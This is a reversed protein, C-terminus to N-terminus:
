YSGKAVIVTPITKVIIIMDGVLSWKSVYSTDLVVRETFTTESRGSIQWPGTLGPRARIYTKADNGYMNLEQRIVPRPGVISMEGRLVNVLQPLEDISFKRLVAGVAIIRPDHKLKRTQEWEHRASPSEELHNQLLEDSNPLMTRFKLCDFEQQGFGIRRHRYIVPTGISWAILIVIMLFLPALIILAPVVLALDLARKSYGGLPRNGRDYRKVTCNKAAGSENDERLATSTSSAYVSEPFAM